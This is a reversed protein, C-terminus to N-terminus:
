TAAKLYNLVWAADSDSPFIPYHVTHIVGQHAVMTLRKLLTQGLSEFTPLNLSKQFHLHEDSLVPFPLQLREVMEQQYATNQTSLGFVQAGLAKLAPHAQKYANSQPTCGRAGPIQDWGPPLAVGPVGTMPYCYIVVWGTLLSVDVEAAHTGRLAIAPLSQGFLHAAAGDDQPVPLNDPTTDYTSMAACFNTVFDNEGL